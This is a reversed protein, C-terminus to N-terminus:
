FPLDEAKDEKPPPRDLVKNVVSVATNRPIPVAANDFKKNEACMIEKVTADFAHGNGKVFVRIIRAAIQKNYITKGDKDQYKNTEIKGEIYILARKEVAGDKVMQNLPSWAVVQHWEEKVIDEGAKNKYREATVLKFKSLSSSDKEITKPEDDVYGVLIVKNVGM